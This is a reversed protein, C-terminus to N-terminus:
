KLYRIAFLTIMTIIGAIFLLNLIKHSTKKNAKVWSVIGVIILIFFIPLSRGIWYSSPHNISVSYVVGAFLLLIVTWGFWTTQGGKSSNSDVAARNEGRPAPSPPSIAQLPDIGRGKLTVRAAKLAEETYDEPSRLVQCLVETDENLYRELLDSYGNM